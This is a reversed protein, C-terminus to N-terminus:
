RPASRASRPACMPTGSRYGSPWRSMVGSWHCNPSGGATVAVRSLPRLTIRVIVTAAAGAALLGIGVVMLEIVALRSLVAKVEGLPLGTIVVQGATDRLGILRYEGLAGVLVTHPRGDVPLGAVAADEAADSLPRVVGDQGIV